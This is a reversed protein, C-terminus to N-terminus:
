IELYTKFIVDKADEAYLIGDWIDRQPTAYGEPTSAYSDPAQDIAVDARIRQARQRM